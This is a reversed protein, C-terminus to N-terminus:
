SDNPPVQQGHWGTGPCTLVEKINAPNQLVDTLDWNRTATLEPWANDSNQLLQHSTAQNPYKTKGKEEGM